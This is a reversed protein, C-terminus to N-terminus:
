VGFSNGCGCSRKAQPNSIKFGANTLSDQYDIESGQLMDISGRDIYLTFGDQEVVVDQETATDALTLVYGMGSCGGKKVGIRLAKKNKSACLEKIKQAALSTLSLDLELEDASPASSAAQEIVENIKGIASEIDEESMGHGRFGDALTEYPSVHCGVCHVGYSMLTDIAEPHQEVLEGILTEGTIKKVAAPATEQIPHHQM